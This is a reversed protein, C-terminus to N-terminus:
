NIFQFLTERDLYEIAVYDRDESCPARYKIGEVGGLILIEWDGLRVGRGRRLEVAAGVVSNFRSGLM